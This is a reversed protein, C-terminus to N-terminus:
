DYEIKPLHTLLEWQEANIIQEIFSDGRKKWWKHLIKFELKADFRLSDSDLVFHEQSNFNAFLESLLKLNELTKNQYYHEIMNEVQEEDLIAMALLIEDNSITPATKELLQNLWNLLIKKEEKTWPTESKSTIQWDNLLSFCTPGYSWGMEIQKIIIPLLRKFDHEDGVTAVRWNSYFNELVKHSVEEIPGSLIALNEETTCCNTCGLVKKAPYLSFVEYIARHSESNM